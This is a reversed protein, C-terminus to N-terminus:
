TSSHFPPSASSSISLTLQCTSARRGNMGSCGLCLLCCRSQWLLVDVHDVMYNVLHYISKIGHIWRTICVLTVPYLIASLITHKSLVIYLMLQLWHTGTHKFPSRTSQPLLWRTYIYSPFCIDFQQGHRTLPHPGPPVKPAWVMMRSCPM